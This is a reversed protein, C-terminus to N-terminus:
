PTSVRSEAISRIASLDFKGSGLKPIQEVELFADQRPIWLKPLEGHALEEYIREVPFSLPTHLVVLREGKQSDPVSTVAVETCLGEDREESTCEQQRQVIGQIKEEVHLHPVMEGGIKSFRSLRGTISIFGDEDICAIDGTVYWGDRMVRATLEPQNLYGKMVTPGKILLMGETEPGPPLDALSEPDVVKAAVGPLPHGTTGPKHGKQHIGERVVDPVNLAVAPSLETCGYGELIPIGFRELWAEGLSSDLKEAGSGCFRLTHVDEPSFRRLYARYFTPTSVFITGKHTRILKAIGACDLPNPHYLVMMGNLLPLWITVTYGFSHFLPLAGVVRDRRQPDFVHTLNTVNSLINHHTLLVGKPEGTSGSSFIVTAVANPDRPIGPLRRLLFTPLLATLFARVKRSTQAEALLEEVDVHRADEDLRIKELFRRSTIITRVGSQKLASELSEKGVTFNLNVAAKGLLTVAVNVLAGGNGPPLLIGVHSQDRVRKRLLGRLLLAATLVRRFTLRQGTQDVMAPRRPYRRAAALFRTALTEGSRKRANLAEAGLEQVAQRVQHASSGPPLPEGVAITVPYPLRLPRKFFFRGGQFSFISGWMRDLYIPVIPVEARRAIRELGKSFPLLNGTRTI